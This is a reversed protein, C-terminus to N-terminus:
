KEEQGEGIRWVAALPGKLFRLQGVDSKQASSGLAGAKSLCGRDGSRLGERSEERVEDKGEWCSRCM